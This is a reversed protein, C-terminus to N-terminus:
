GRSLPERGNVAAADSDNSHQAAHGNPLAHSSSTRSSAAPGGRGVIVTLKSVQVDSFNDSEPDTPPQSQAVVMSPHQGQQLYMQQQALDYGNAVVPPPQQQGPPPSFQQQGGHQSETPSMPGGGYPMRAGGNAQAWPASSAAASQPAVGGGYSHRMQLHQTEFGQPVPVRPVSLEDTGDHRASPDREEMALVWQGWNQAPRLRDKGDPGIRWEINKSEACAYKILDTDTTLQKMRKFDAIFSLFVFGRTDMHKRLYIDKILNDVSFYYERNSEDTVRM